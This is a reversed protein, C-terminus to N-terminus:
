GKSFKTVAMMRIDDLIPDTKVREKADIGHVDKMYTDFKELVTAEVSGASMGSGKLEKIVYDKADLWQIWSPLNGKIVTPM